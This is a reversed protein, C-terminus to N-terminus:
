RLCCPRLSSSRELSGQLTGNRLNECIRAATPPVLPMEPLDAGWRRRGISFCDGSKGVSGILKHWLIQDRLHLYGIYWGLAVAPSLSAGWQSHQLKFSLPISLLPGTGCLMREYRCTSIDSISLFIGPTKGKLRHDNFHLCGWRHANVGNWQRGTIKMRKCALKIPFLSFGVLQM